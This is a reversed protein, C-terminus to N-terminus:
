EGKKDIVEQDTVLLDYSIDHEQCPLCTTKQFAFALATKHIERYFPALYRDYYGGGYGLRGGFGDFCLGPLILEIRQGKWNEYCFREGEEPELIQFENERKRSDPRLFVFEMAAGERIGTLVRPVAVPKQDQFCRRFLAGLDPEGKANQYALVVDAECYYPLRFYQELIRRSRRVWEQESLEQRRLRM